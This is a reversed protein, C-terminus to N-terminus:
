EEEIDNMLNETQLHWNPANEHALGWLVADRLLAYMQPASRILRADFELRDQYPGSHRAEPPGWVAAVCLGDSDIIDRHEPQDGPEITWPAPSHKKM